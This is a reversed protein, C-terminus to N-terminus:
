EGWPRAAWLRLYAHPVRVIRADPIEGEWVKASLSWAESWGLNGYMGCRPPGYWLAERWWVQAQLGTPWGRQYAMVAIYASAKRKADAYDLVDTNLGTDGWEDKDWKWGLCFTGRYMEM